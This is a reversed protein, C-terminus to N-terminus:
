VNENRWLWIEHGEVDAEKVFGARTLLPESTALDTDRSVRIEGIGQDRAWALLKITYRYLARLRYGPKVDMFGWVGDDRGLYVGGVAVTRFGERAAFGKFPVVPARGYFRFMEREDLERVEIM